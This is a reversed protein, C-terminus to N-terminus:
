PEAEISKLKAVYNSPIYGEQRTKKSRALWWDGQLLLYAFSILNFCFAAFRDIWTMSILVPLTERDPTSKSHSCFTQLKEDPDNEQAASRVNSHRPIASCNKDAHFSFSFSVEMHWIIAIHMCMRTYSTDLANSLVHVDSCFSNVLSNLSHVTSLGLGVKACETTSVM